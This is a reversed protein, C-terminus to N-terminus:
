PICSRFRRHEVGYDIGEPPPSSSAPRISIGCREGACSTCSLIASRASRRATSGHESADVGREATAFWRSRYARIHEAAQAVLSTLGAYGDPRVLVAIGVRGFATEFRTGDVALDACASTLLSELPLSASQTDRRSRHVISLYQMPAIISAAIQRPTHNSITESRPDNSIM